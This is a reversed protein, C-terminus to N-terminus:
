VHCQKYALTLILIIHLITYNLVHICHLYIIIMQTKNESILFFVAYVDKHCTLHFKSYLWRQSKTHKSLRDYMLGGFHSSNVLQICYHFRAVSHVLMMWLECDSEVVTLHETLNCVHPRFLNSVWHLKSCVLHFSVVTTPRWFNVLSRIFLYHFILRNTIM